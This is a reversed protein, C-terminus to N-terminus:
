RFRLNGRNYFATTLSPIINLARSYDAIAKSTEGRAEYAVARSFYALAFDPAFQLAINYAGVARSFDGHRAFKNGLELYSAATEDRTEAAVYGASAAFYLTLSLTGLFISKGM